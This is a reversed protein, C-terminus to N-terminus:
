GKLSAMDISFRYKVDAKLLREYAENVKQIPIVEVDATINHKGCFDLMEQTEPLGGIPSGSLSKRGFLLGFAAVQLPKEPAGVLTINGDRRLLQIYANIDHEASVADLIFDFSGAQKAMEDANRSIVVEDAGLRLADERKNPSTTFVVTHAGLAHAFKVGMHGLGGLGVVGVKKGKSVGWHHMPSYTTIGACLLPAAGALDLNKPVHLVFREDVVISDSYGGYTVGGTHKDPFNYTLTLNACFQELGAKCEPCTRDSDVLCGVAGIDGAKFKTVSSGVGTVRGVIEHGPVCPYVTPMVGSWENRAQHLDSHCVGCFLIELQVDHETPERRVITDPKFPSTASAVSYAKANNM